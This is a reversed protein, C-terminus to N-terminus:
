DFKVAYDYVEKIVSPVCVCVRMCIYIRTERLYIHMCMNLYIFLDALLYVYISILLVYISIHLKRKDPEEVKLCNASLLYQLTTSVCIDASVPVYVTSM